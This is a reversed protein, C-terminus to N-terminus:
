EEVRKLGMPGDEYLKSEFTGRGGHRLTILMDKLDVKSKSCLTQKLKPLTKQLSEMSLPREHPRNVAFHVRRLNPLTGLQAIGRAERQEYYIAHSDIIYNISILGIERLTEPLLLVLNSIFTDHLSIGTCMFKLLRPTCRKMEQLSSINESAHKANWSFPFDCSVTLEEFRPCHWALRLAKHHLVLCRISTFEYAGKSLALGLPDSQPRTHMRLVQLTSLNPLLSLTHVFEPLVTEASYESLVVTLTRVYTGLLKNRIVIREMQEVLEYAFYKAMGASWIRSRLTSSTQDDHIKGAFKYYPLLSPSACVQVHEYALPTFIYRLRSSTLSLSRLADTRELYASSLVHCNTTPVPPDDALYSIIELLLEVALIPLGVSNVGRRQVIETNQATHNIKTKKNRSM